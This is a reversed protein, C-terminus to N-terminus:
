MRVYTRPRRALVLSPTTYNVTIAPVDGGAEYSSFRLSSAGTAGKIIIAIYQDAVYSAHSVWEQLAAAFDPTTRVGTGVNAASWTTYATSRPRASINNDSAVFSAPNGLQCYIQVDPDDYTGSAINIALTASSIIADKPIPCTGFVLGVYHNLNNVNLNTGTVTVTAGLQQADRDGGVIAQTWTAM